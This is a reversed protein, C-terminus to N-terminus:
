LQTHRQHCPGACSIYFDAAGATDRSLFRPRSDLASSLLMTRSVGAAAALVYVQRIRERAGTPPVTCVTCVRKTCFHLMRVQYTVEFTDPNTGADLCPEAVLGCEEWSM